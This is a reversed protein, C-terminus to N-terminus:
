GDASEDASRARKIWADATRSPVGSFARRTAASAAHPKVGDAIRQRYDAIFAKRESRVPHKDYHRRVAEARTASSWAQWERQEDVLDAAIARLDDALPALPALREAVKALRAIGAAAFLGSLVLADTKSLDRKRALMCEAEGLWQIRPETSDDDTM